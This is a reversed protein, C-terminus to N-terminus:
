TRESNVCRIACTLDRAYMPFCYLSRVYTARRQGGLAVISAHAPHLYLARPIRPVCWMVWLATHVLPLAMRSVPHASPISLYAYFTALSVHAYILQVQWALANRAAMRKHGSFVRRPTRPLRCLSARARIFVESPLGCDGRAPLLPSSPGTLSPLSMSSLLLLFYPRKSSVTHVQAFSRCAMM